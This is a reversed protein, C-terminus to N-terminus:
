EEGGNWMEELYNEVGMDDTFNATYKDGGWYGVVTHEDFNVWINPGGFAVLVQASIFQRDSGVIYRIDLVDELWEMAGVADIDDDNFKEDESEARDKLYETAWKHKNSLDEAISDCNRKLHQESTETM